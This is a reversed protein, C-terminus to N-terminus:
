KEETHDVNSKSVAKEYTTIAARAGQVACMKEIHRSECFPHAFYANHFAEAVEWVIDENKNENM